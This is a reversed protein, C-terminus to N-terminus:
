KLSFAKNIEETIKIRALVYKVIKEVDEKKSDKLMEPLETIIINPDEQAREILNDVQRKLAFKIFYILYAAVGTMTCVSAAIFCKRAGNYEFIQTDCIVHLRDLLSPRQLAKLPEEAKNIRKELDDALKEAADQHAQKNVDFDLQEKNTDVIVSTPTVPKFDSEERREAIIPDALGKIHAIGKKVVEKASKLQECLVSANPIVLENVQAGGVMLANERLSSIMESTVALELQKAVLEKEREFFIVGSRRLAENQKASFLVFEDIMENCFNIAVPQIDAIDKILADRAVVVYPVILDFLYSAVDLIGEEKLYDFQNFSDKKPFSSEKLGGEALAKINKEASICSVVPMLEEYTSLQVSDKIGGAEVPVEQIHIGFSEESKSEIVSGRDSSDRAWLLNALLGKGVDNGILCSVIKQKKEDGIELPIKKIGGDFADLRILCGSLLLLFFVSKINM